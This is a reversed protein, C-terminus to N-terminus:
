RSPASHDSGRSDWVAWPPLAPAEEALSQRSNRWLAALLQAEVKRSATYKAATTKNAPRVLEDSLVQTAHRKLNGNRPRQLRKVVSFLM